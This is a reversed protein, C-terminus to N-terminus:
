DCSPAWQRLTSDGCTIWTAAANYKVHWYSAVSDDNCVHRGSGLGYGTGCGGADGTSYSDSGAYPQLPPFMNSRVGWQRPCGSARTMSSDNAERGHNRTSVYNLYQWTSSYVRFLVASHHGFSVCCSAWRVEAQHYYGSSLAGSAAGVSDFSRVTTGDAGRAGLVLEGEAETDIDRADSSPEIPPSRGERLDAELERLFDRESAAANHAGRLEWRFRQGIDPQELLLVAAEALLDLDEITEENSLPLPGDVLREGSSADFFESRDIYPGTVLRDGGIGINFAYDHRNRFIRDYEYPSDIEPDRVFGEVRPGNRQIVLTARAAGREVIAALGADSHELSVVRIASPSDTPAVCGGGLIALALMLAIAVRQNGQM